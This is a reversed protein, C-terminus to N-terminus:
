ASYRRKLAAFADKKLANGLWIEVQRFPLGQELCTKLANVIPLTRAKDPTLLPVLVTRARVFVNDGGGMLVTKEAMPLDVALRADDDVTRSPLICDAHHKDILALIRNHRAVSAVPLTYYALSSPLEYTSFEFPDTPDAALAQIDALLAPTQTHIIWQGGKLFPAAGTWSADKAAALYDDWKPHSPYIQGFHRLSDTPFWSLSLEPAWYESREHSSRCSYLRAASNCAYKLGDFFARLTTYSAAAPHGNQALWACDSRPGQNYDAFRDNTDILTALVAPPIPAGASYHTM